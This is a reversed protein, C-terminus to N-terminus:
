WGADVALVDPAAQVCCILGGAQAASTLSSTIGTRMAPEQLLAVTRSASVGGAGSVGAMAEVQGWADVGSADAALTVSAAEYDAQTTQQTITCTVKGGHPQIESTLAPLCATVLAAPAGLGTIAEVKIRVNGAATLM